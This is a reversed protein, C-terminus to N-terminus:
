TLAEKLMQIRFHISNLFYYFTMCTDCLANNREDRTRSCIRENRWAPCGIQIIEKAVRDTLTEM